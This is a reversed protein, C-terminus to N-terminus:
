SGTCEACGVLVCFSCGCMHTHCCHALKSHPIADQEDVDNASKKGTLMPLVLNKQKVKKYYVIAAIHLAIAGLLVNFGNHHIISMVKEVAEPLVGYYPANAFIDDTMFLGTVAQLLVLLLMLLVMLSGMPNHGAYNRENGQKQESVYRKLKTFTPVFQTFLAHKTGIFGWIVRFIM